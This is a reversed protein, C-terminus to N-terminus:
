EVKATSDKALATKLIVALVPFFIIGFFGFLSYGAYISILMILPHLGLNKGVIKPEAIQRVVIGVGYLVLLGIGIGRGGSVLMFVGWPILVTGIGIVPLLDLLAIIFAMLLAYRVGIVSLGFFMLSFMLLMILFYSRLYKVIISFSRDKFGSIAAYVKKPLLIHVYKKVNELDLSFYVSSIASILIFLIIRPVGSAAASIVGASRSILTELVGSLAGKLSEALEDSIGSKGFIKEASSIVAEILSALSTGEGLATLLGWAQECLKVIVLIGGGIIVAIMFISIVARCIKSPIHLKSAFFGSPRETILAIGFALLFPLVAPLLFRAGLYLLASAAAAIICIHSIAAIKERNLRM